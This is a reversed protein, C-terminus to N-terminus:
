SGVSYVDRSSRLGNKWRRFYRPSNFTRFLFQYAWDWKSKSIRGIIRKRELTMASNAQSLQGARIRFGAVQAGSYFVKYKKDLARIVIDLDASYRFSDDFGKLNTILRRSYLSGPQQVGVIGRALLRPIGIAVPMIPFLHKNITDGHRIVAVDGYVLDAQRKRAFSLSEEFGIRLIDDDNIYTLYDWDYEKLSDIAQNLAGYMGTAKTEPVFISNQAITKLTQIHVPPCVIAHVFNTLLHISDLTESFFPSNGLTPTIIAVKPNEM